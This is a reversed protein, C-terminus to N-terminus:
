PRIRSGRGAARRGYRSAGHRVPRVPQLRMSGFPKHFWEFVLVFKSSLVTPGVRTLRNMQPEIRYEAQRPALHALPLEALRFIPATIQLPLRFAEQLMLLSDTRDRTEVALGNYDLGLVNNKRM